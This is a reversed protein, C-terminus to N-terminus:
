DPLTQKMLHLQLETHFSYRFHIVVLSYYIQSIVFNPNPRPLLRSAYFNINFVFFWQFCIQIRFFLLSHNHHCAGESRGM